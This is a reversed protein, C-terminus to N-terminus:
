KLLFSHWSQVFIVDSHSLTLTLTTAFLFQLKNIEAAGLNMSSHLRRSGSHAASEVLHVARTEVVKVLVTRLHNFRFLPWRFPRRIQIASDYRPLSARLWKSVKM